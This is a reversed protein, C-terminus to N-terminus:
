HIQLIDRLWCAVPLRLFALSIGHCAPRCWRVGRVGLVGRQRNCARALGWVDRVFREDCSSQEATLCPKYHLGTTAIILDVGREGLYRFLQNGSFASADQRQPPVDPMGGIVETHWYEFLQPPKTPMAVPAAHTDSFGHGRISRLATQGAYPIQRLYHLSVNALNAAQLATPAEEHYPYYRPRGLGIFCALLEYYQRVTSDGVLAVRLGAFQQQLAARLDAHGVSLPTEDRVATHKGGETPCCPKFVSACTCGTMPVAGGGRTSDLGAEVASVARGHRRSLPSKWVRDNSSSSVLICFFGCSLVLSLRTILLKIRSPPQALLVDWTGVMQLLGWSDVPLGRPGLFKDSM